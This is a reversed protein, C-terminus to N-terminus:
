ELGELYVGGDIQSSLLYHLRHLTFLKDDRDVLNNVTGVHGNLM